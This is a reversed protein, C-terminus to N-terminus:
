LDPNLSHLDQNAHLISPDNKSNMSKHILVSFISHVAKNPMQNYYLIHGNMSYFLDSTGFSTQICVQRLSAMFICIFIHRWLDTPFVAILYSKLWCISNGYRDSDHPYVPDDATDSLDLVTLISSLLPRIVTWINKDSLKTVWWGM